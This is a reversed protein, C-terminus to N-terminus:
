FSGIEFLRGGRSPTPQIGFTAKKQMVEGHEVRLGSIRECFISKHLLGCAEQNCITSLFFSFLFPPIFEKHKEMLRFM